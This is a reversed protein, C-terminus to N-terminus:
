GKSRLYQRPWAIDVGLARAAQLPWYPARLLERGLAVLDAQGLQLIQEAQVPATILGVAVTPLGAEHRVREAFPVQYGPAVNAPPAVSIGGSSCDVADVGCTHLAQAVPVIDEVTLGGDHWDCCSLRVLLPKREPWVARVGEVVRLLLRMRKEPTGGYEDERQNALPSLFQHLLYGHAGHIEIVDYGAAEARRAAAVWQAVVGDLEALGLVHPTVWEQGQPLASPGVPVGPGQGFTASWAKRGAHGLQVGAAAGQAQVTRVIRALPEVQADNWLGLDNPSIRGRAEVATAEQLVLGGGGVARAVYHALHWDTALGDTGASYMCMPSMVIRNRLTLGRLTLPSFLLTM